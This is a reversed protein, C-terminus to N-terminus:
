KKTYYQDIWFVFLDYHLSAMALLLSMTFHVINREVNKTPISVKMFLDGKTYMSHEIREGRFIVDTWLGGQLPMNKLDEITKCSYLVSDGKCFDITCSHIERQAISILMADIVRKNRDELLKQINQLAQIIYTFLFHEHTHRLTHQLISEQFTEISSPKENVLRVVVEKLTNSYYKQRTYVDLNKIWEECQLQLVNPKVIYPLLYFAMAIVLVQNIDEIMGHFLHNIYKKELSDYVDLSQLYAKHKLVISVAKVTVWPSSPWDSKTLISAVVDEGVLSISNKSSYQLIFDLDQLSYKYFQLPIGFNSYKLISAVITSMNKYVTVM